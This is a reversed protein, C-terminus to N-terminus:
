PESGFSGETFRFPALTHSACGPRIRKAAVRRQATWTDAEDPMLVVPRVIGWAMPMVPGAARRFTVRAVGLDGAIERALPLWPADTVLTSRRSLRQVFVFGLLLRGLILGTGAAWAIAALATWSLRPGADDANPASTPAIGQALDPAAVPTRTELPTGPAPVQVAAAPPQVSASASPRAVRLLPAEWRPLVVSAAPLVLAAVLACTWVLHRTAASSRRLARAALAAATLVATAKATADLVTLWPQPLQFLADM